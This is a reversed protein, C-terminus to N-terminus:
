KAIPEAPATSKQFRKWARAKAAKRKSFNVRKKLKWKSPSGSRSGKGYPTYNWAAYKGNVKEVSWCFMEKTKTNEFYRYKAQRPLLSTMLDYVAQTPM